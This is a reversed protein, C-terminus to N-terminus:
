KICYCCCRCFLCVCVFFVLLLASVFYFPNWWMLLEDFEYKLISQKWVYVFLCVCFSSSLSGIFIHSFGNNNLPPFLTFTNIFLVRRITKVAWKWEVFHNWFWIRKELVFFFSVNCSSRITLARKKAFISIKWIGCILCNISKKKWKRRKKEMLTNWVDFAVNIKITM